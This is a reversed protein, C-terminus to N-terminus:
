DGNLHYYRFNGKIKQALFAGPTDSNSFDVLVENPVDFYRYEQDNRFRVDVTSGSYDFSLKKINPSESEDFTREMRLGIKTECSIGNHEHEFVESLDAPNFFENCINCEIKHM